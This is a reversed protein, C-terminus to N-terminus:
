VLPENLIDQFRLNNLCQTPLSVFVLMGVTERIFELGATLILYEYPQFSDPIQHHGKKDFM